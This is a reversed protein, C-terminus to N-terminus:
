VLGMGMENAVYHIRAGGHVLRLSIKKLALGSLFMSYSDSIDQLNPLQTLHGM